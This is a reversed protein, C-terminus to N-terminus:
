WYWGFYGGDIEMDHWESSIYELDTFFAFNTKDTFNEPVDFNWRTWPSLKESDFDYFIEYFIKQDISFSFKM